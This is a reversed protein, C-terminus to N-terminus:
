RGHGMQGSPKVSWGKCQRLICERLLYPWLVTKVQKLEILYTCLKVAEDDM